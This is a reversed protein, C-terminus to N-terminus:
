VLTVVVVRCSFQANINFESIEHRSMGTAKAGQVKQGGQRLRLASDGQCSRFIKGGKLRFARWQTSGSRSSFWTLPYLLIACRVPVRIQPHMQFGRTWQTILRSESGLRAVGPETQKYPRGTSHSGLILVLTPVRRQLSLCPVDADCPRSDFNPPQSLNIPLPVGVPGTYGNM